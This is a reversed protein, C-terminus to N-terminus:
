TTKAVQKRYVIRELPNEPNLADLLADVSVEALDTIQLVCKFHTITLNCQDVTM